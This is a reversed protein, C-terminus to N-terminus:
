AGDPRRLAALAAFPHPAEDAAGEGHEGDAGAMGPLALPLPEPCSEHRPVLPLALILEDELLTHLDLRRPLALVDDDSHEDLQEALAEDRVFRVRRDVELAQVFPQLCRQCELVVSAQARLHLWLQPEGGAVPIREGQVQWRVPPREAGPGALRSFGAHPWEGALTAGAAAFAEVDLRRPDHEKM